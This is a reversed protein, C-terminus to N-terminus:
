GIRTGPPGGSFSEDLVPLFPVGQMHQPSAVLDPMPVWLPDAEYLYRLGALIPRASLTDRALWTGIMDPWLTLAFWGEADRARIAEVLLVATAPLHAPHAANSAMMLLPDFLPCDGTLPKRRAGALIMRLQALLHAAMQEGAFEAVSFLLQSQHQAAVALLAAGVDEARSTLHAWHGDLPAIVVHGFEAGTLFGQVIAARDHAPLAFYAPRFSEWYAGLDEQGLGNQLRNALLIATAAAFAARDTGPQTAAFQLADFLPRDEARELRAGQHLIVRTLAQAGAGDAKDAPPIRAAIGRFASRAQRGAAARLDM